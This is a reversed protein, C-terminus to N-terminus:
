RGPTVPRSYLFGQVLDCGQAALLERQEVSEVGEAVVKLGLVHAMVIAAKVLELDAPECGIDHIFKRDIKLANFPFNRLYSLSSYGTGFDDMAISVGVDSLSALSSEVHPHGHMMLVGETIELELLQHAMDSERLSEQVFPALGPDHFQRPSLNVSVTFPTSRERRWEMAKALAERGDM